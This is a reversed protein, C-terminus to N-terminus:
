RATEAFYITVLFYYNNHKCANVHLFVCAYFGNKAAELLPSFCSSNYVTPDAGADLLIAVCENRHALVSIHLATNGELDQLLCLIYM